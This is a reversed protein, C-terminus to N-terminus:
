LVNNRPDHSPSSSDAMIDAFSVIRVDTVIVCPDQQVVTAAVWNLALPGIM